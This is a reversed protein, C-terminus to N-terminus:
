HVVGRTHLLCHYVAHGSGLEDKLQVLGVEDFHEASCWMRAKSNGAPIKDGPARRRAGRGTTGPTGLSLKTKAAYVVLLAQCLGDLSWTRSSRHTGAMENEHASAELARPRHRHAAPIHPHPSHLLRTENAIVDQLCGHRRGHGRRPRGSPSCRDLLMLALRLACADRTSTTSLQRWHPRASCSRARPSATRRNGNWRRQRSFNDQSDM